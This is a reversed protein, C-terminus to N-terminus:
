HSLNLKSCLVLASSQSIAYYRNEIEHPLYKELFFTGPYVNVVVFASKGDIRCTQFDFPFKRKKTGCGANSYSIVRNESLKTAHM